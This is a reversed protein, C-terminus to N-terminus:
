HHDHVRGTGTRVPWDVGLCAGGGRGAAGWVPYLVRLWDFLSGGLAPAFARTLNQFM